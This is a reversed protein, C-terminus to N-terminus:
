AHFNSETNAWQGAIVADAKDRAVTARWLHQHTCQEDHSFYRLRFNEMATLAEPMSFQLKVHGNNDSILHPFFFATENLNKRPSVAGLNPAALDPRRPKQGAWRRM